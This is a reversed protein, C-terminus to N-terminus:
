KNFQMNEFDFQQNSKKNRNKRNRKPNIQKTSDDAEPEPEAPAEAKPEEESMVQSIFLNIEEATDTDTDEMDELDPITPLKSDDIKQVRQAIQRPPNAPRSEDTVQRLGALYEEQKEALRRVAAIYKDTDACARALRDEETKVQEDLEAFKRGYEDNAKELMVRCQERADAVMDESTKQATALAIRMSDETAHYSDIKKELESVKAKLSKNENVLQEYDLQLEELFADVGTMEYGGFVAKDFGKNQIDQPTLM